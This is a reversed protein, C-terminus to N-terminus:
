ASSQLLAEFDPSCVMKHKVKGLVTLDGTREETAVSVLEQFVPPSFSM